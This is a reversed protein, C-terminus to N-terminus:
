FIEKLKYILKSNEVNYTLIIMNMIAKSTSAGHGIVVTKNVGLIPLGGYNEFNFREVYENALNGEKLMQYFGEAQKLLINGVFGDCIAVDAKDSNFLDNGEINGIFNFHSTEKMLDYTAKALLNGKEPESGVNLLGVRPNNINYIHEAYKSALIAYQYLVDPKCDPNIGVDALILNSGDKRPVTAAICPRIVGPISKITYTAGVLVAGTNGASAFSDIKGTNLLDFGVSISSKPKQAFAKAPHDGMEIVDPADVVEYNNLNENQELLLTNIREAPGILVLKVEESLQKRAMVAGQLTFEPAFDGGMIDVGIKM